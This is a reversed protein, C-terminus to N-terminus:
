GGCTSQPLPVLHNFRDKIQQDTPKDKQVFIVVSGLVDNLATLKPDDHAYAAPILKDLISASKKGAFFDRLDQKLFDNWNRESYSTDDGTYIYYKAGAPPNPLSQGRIPM